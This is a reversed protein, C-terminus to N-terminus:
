NPHSGLGAEEEEAQDPHPPAACMRQAPLSVTLWPQDRRGSRGLLPSSVRVPERGPHQLGVEGSVTELSLAFAELSGLFGCLRCPSVGDPCSASAGRWRRHARGGMLFGEPGAGGSLSAGQHWSLSWWSGNKHKNTHTKQAYNKLQWELTSLFVLVCYPCQEQHQCAHM